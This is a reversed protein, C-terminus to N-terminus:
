HAVRRSGPSDLPEDRACLPCGDPEWSEARLRLLSAFPVGFTADPSRDIIAGVGVPEAGKDAILQIVERQSGGTTVVDEIILARDSPELEFRRRLMMRGDVRESFIMRVGLYRAVEHAIILGGMAPGVVVTPSTRQLQTGLEHGLREAIGPHQLVLACQVYADSHRGSSLEFHGHLLADARELAAQVESANM